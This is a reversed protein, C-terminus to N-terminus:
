YVHPVSNSNKKRPGNITYFLLFLLFVLTLLNYNKKLQCILYYDTIRYQVAIDYASDHTSVHVSEHASDHKSVHVSDRASDHKTIHVSDHTYELRTLPILPM